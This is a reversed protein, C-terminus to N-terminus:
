WWCSRTTHSVRNYCWSRLTWKRLGGWCYINGAQDLACTLDFGMTIDIINSLFGSPHAQEGTVVQLPVASDPELIDGTGLPEGGEGWCFVTGNSRLACVNQRGSVIKTVNNLLAAGSGGGLVQQPIHTTNFTGDGLQGFTNDGWCIVTSNTRVACSQANMLDARGDISFPISTNVTTPFLTDKIISFDSTNLINQNCSLLFLVPVLAFIKFLSFKM